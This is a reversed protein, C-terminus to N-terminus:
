RSRPPLGSDEAPVHSSSAYPAFRPAQGNPSPQLLTQSSVLLSEIDDVCSDHKEPKKIPSAAVSACSPYRPPEHAQNAHRSASDALTSSGHERAVSYKLPWQLVFDMSSPINTQPHPAPSPPFHREGVM